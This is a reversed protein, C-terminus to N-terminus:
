IQNTKNRYNLSIEPQKSPTDMKKDYKEDMNSLVSDM